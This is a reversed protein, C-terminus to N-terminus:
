CSFSRYVFNIGVSNMFSEFMISVVVVSIQFKHRNLDIRFQKVKKVCLSLSLSNFRQMLKALNVSSNPSRFSRGVNKTTENSNEEM